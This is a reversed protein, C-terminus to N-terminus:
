WCARRRADLWDAIPAFVAEPAADGTLLDVHGLQPPLERVEAEGGWAAAAPACAWPPAVADGPSTCVLLPGRAESLAAVYDIRGSRDVLTGAELWRSLQRFWALHVDDVGHHLLGRLRSGESSGPVTRDLWVSEGDVWPAVVPGVAGVPLRWWPPLLSLVAARRGAESRPARFRVAAGLTVVGALGDGGWAGAYALAAQGGLGHGILWVRPYRAHASAREIAAPLDRGVVDDFWPTAGPSPPIADADGRHALLYVAFGADALAGALTDSGYRAAHPGLGFGHALVVPEGASGPRPPLYFLPARWGDSATYYLRTLAEPREAAVYPGRDGPQLVRWLGVAGWKALSAALARAPAPLPPRPKAPLM